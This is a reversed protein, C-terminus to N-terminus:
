VQASVGAIVAGGSANTVTGTITGSPVLAFNVNTRTSGATVAIPTGTTVGCSTAPCSIGNYLQDVWGFKSGVAFYNGTPLGPVTYIGSASNIYLYYGVSAGSSNYITARAFDTSGGSVTVAGSISGGGALLFDIGSTTVGGTVVIPTGSTITCSRGPCTIGTYLQDVYNLSLSPQDRFGQSSTALFYNGPPM